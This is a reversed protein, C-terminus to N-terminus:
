KAPRAPDNDGRAYENWLDNPLLRRGEFLFGERYESSTFRFPMRHNDRTWDSDKANGWTIRYNGWGLGKM